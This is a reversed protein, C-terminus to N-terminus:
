ESYFTRLGSCALGVPGQRAFAEAWECHAKFIGAPPLSLYNMALLRNHGANTHDPQVELCREYAELSEKIDGQERVLVGKTNHAEGYSPNSAISRQCCDIAEEHEGLTSLLVAINTLTQFYSSNIALAERYWHMAKETNGRSMYIVGM